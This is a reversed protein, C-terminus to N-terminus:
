KKPLISNPAYSVASEKRMLYFSLAIKLQLEKMVKLLILLFSLNSPTIQDKLCYEKSLKFAKYVSCSLASSRRWVELDEFRM